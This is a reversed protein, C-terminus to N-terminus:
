EEEKMERIAEKYDEKRENKRIMRNVLYDYKMEQPYIVIYAILECLITWEVSFLINEIAESAATRCLVLIIGVLALPYVKSTGILIHKFINSNEWSNVWEGIKKKMRWIVLFATIVFVYSLKYVTAQRFVDFKIITLVLPTVWAILAFALRFFLRTKKAEELTISKSENGM